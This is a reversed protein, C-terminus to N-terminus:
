AAVKRKQRALAIRLREATELAKPTLAVFKIRRSLPAPDCTVYGREELFRLAYSANTGFYMGRRRLDMPSVKSEGIAALMLAVSPAMNDYKRALGRVHMMLDEYDQLISAIHDPMNIM